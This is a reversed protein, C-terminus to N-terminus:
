ELGLYGLSQGVWTSGSRFKSIKERVLRSGYSSRLEGKREGSDSGMGQYHRISLLGGRAPDIYREIFRIVETRKKPRQSVAVVYIM